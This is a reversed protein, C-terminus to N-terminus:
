KGLSSHEIFFLYFSLFSFVLALLEVRLRPTKLTFIVSRNKLLARQVTDLTTDLIKSYSHKLSRGKYKRYGM